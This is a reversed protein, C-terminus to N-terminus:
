DNADSQIKYVNLKIDMSELKGRVAEVTIIEKNRDDWFNIEKVVCGDAMHKEVEMVIRQGKTFSGMVCLVDDMVVGNKLLISIITDKFKPQRSTLIKSVSGSRAAQLKYEEHLEPRLKIDFVNPDMSEIRGWWGIHPYPIGYHKSWAIKGEDQLPTMGFCGDFDYFNLVIEKM